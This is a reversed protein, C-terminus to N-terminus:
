TFISKVFHDQGHLKYIVNALCIIQDETPNLRLVFGDAKLDITTRNTIIGGVSYLLDNEAM